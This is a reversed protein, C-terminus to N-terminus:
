KCNKATATTLYFKAFSTVFANAIKQQARTPSARLLSAGWFTRERVNSHVVTNKVRKKLRVNPLAFIDCSDHMYTSHAHMASAVITRDGEVNGIIPLTIM